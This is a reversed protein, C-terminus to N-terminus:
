KKNLIIQDAYFEKVREITKNWDSFDKLDLIPAKIEIKKSYVVTDNEEKISLSFGYKENQEDIATPLYNVKWGEPVKLTSTNEIFYKGSFEYPTNREEPMEFNEFQKDFELNVYLEEGLDIIHNEMKIEYSLEVDVDRNKLTPQNFLNLQVNKDGNSLYSLAFDEWDNKPITSLLYLIYTKRNGTFKVLGSGELKSENISFNHQGSEKNHSTELSPIREIMYGDGDEILAEQGQIRFAYNYLDAYKETPDLFIKKGDYIVTCIMHNDVLLSPITYDYPIDSTGLWTLRADYGALILMEKTLNAMGKCDGYKNNYVKQCAEPKFGMIGNEFAIYRINDQVWYFISKIKDMDDTKDKTLEVVLEKLGDNKNGIQDVLSAYWGYLDEVDEILKVNREGVKYANPILILHANIKSRRPEGKNRFAGRINKLSYTHINNKEEEITSHEPTELEFNLERVDLKLWEPIEIVIESDDIQYYDNFYLPDLFKLDTFIKEYKLMVEEGKKKFIHEFYCVKLDSHFIGNSEYDSIIPIVKRTRRNANKTITEIKSNDDFFVSRTFKYQLTTKSIIKQTVTLKANLEKRKNLFFTLVKKQKEIIVKEDDKVSENKSFVEIPISTGILIIIVTFLINKLLKM